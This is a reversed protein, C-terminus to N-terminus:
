KLPVRVGATYASEHLVISALKTGVPVDYVLKGNVTNGPNIQELFTSSDKNAWIAAGSDASYETNKADYAKQSGDNFIEASQGVNKIRVSILCFEGQAKQGLGEAGVSKVGCKMTTVTFQFKGDTAPSNMKGTAANRGQVNADLDEVAKKGLGIVLASVGVCGVILVLVLGGVIWPWRKRKTPGQPPPYGQQGPPGPPGTPGGPGTPGPYPYQQQTGPYQGYAPPGSGPQQNPDFPPQYTVV